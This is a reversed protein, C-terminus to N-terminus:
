KLAVTSVALAFRLKVDRFDFPHRSMSLLVHVLAQVTAMWGFTSHVRCAVRSPVGLIQATISIRDGLALPILNFMALTGARSSAQGLNKIGLVNCVATGAWYAVQLLLHMRSVPGVLRMRPLIYPYIFHKLMFTSFSSGWSQSFWAFCQRLGFAAMCGGVVTAYLLPADMLYPLIQFTRFHFPLKLWLYSAIRSHSGLPFRVLGSVSSRTNKFPTSPSLCALLIPVEQASLM